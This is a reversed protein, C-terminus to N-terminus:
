PKIMKAYAKELVEIRQSWAHNSLAHDRSRAALEALREPGDLLEELRRTLAGADGYAAYVGVDGLLERNVPTDFVVCPLGCALYNLLKGNAETASLKPSVAIDGLALHRPADAYDIRGTFTVRGTLGLEAARRRYGEEPYGMLLAHVDDRRAALGALADLLLGVGQYETMAGLYVVVRRDTPIGYRERLAADRPLPRFMEVDVGDPLPALKASIGPLERALTTATPTSSTVIFDAKRVIWRELMAFGQHLFGGRRVFGHDLLEGCLSGQCDFLLPVRTLPKLFAGIFAGEHLHAHLIDPRFRRAERLATFFLLVDLYPKHWSPGAETKRYWPIRPIRTVPIGGVDRGLHYTVIRVEHGRSRLARAEEFIRVHCGRDSFYPTPAIMLIRM